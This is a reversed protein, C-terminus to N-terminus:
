YRGIPSWWVSRLMRRGLCPGSWAKHGDPRSSKFRRGRSGWFCAVSGKSWPGAGCGQEARHQQHGTTTQTTTVATTSPRRPVLGAGRMGETRRLKEIYRRVVSSRARQSEHPIGDVPSARGRPIGPVARLSVPAHTTQSQGRSATHYGELLDASHWVRGVGVRGCCSEQDPWGPSSGGALARNKLNVPAHTFPPGHLLVETHVSIREADAQQRTDHHAGSSRSYVPTFRGRRVPRAAKASSESVIIM